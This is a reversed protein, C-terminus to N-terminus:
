PLAVHRVATTSAAWNAVDPATFMVTFFVLATDESALANETLPGVIEESLWVEIAAPDDPRM